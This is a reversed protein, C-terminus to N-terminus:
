REIETRYFTDSLAYGECDFQIYSSFTQAVTDEDFWIDVKEDFECIAILLLTSYGLASKQLFHWQINLVDSSVM